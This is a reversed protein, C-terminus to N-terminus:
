AACNGLRRFSFAAARAAGAGPPKQVARACHGNGKRQGDDHAPPRFSMMSQYPDQEQQRTSHQAGERDGAGADAPLDGGIRFFSHHTLIQM